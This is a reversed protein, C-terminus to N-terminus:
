QHSADIDSLISHNILVLGEQPRIIQSMGWGEGGRKNVLQKETLTKRHTAPGRSTPPPPPPPALDYSRSFAQGRYIM